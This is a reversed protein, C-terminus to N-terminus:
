SPYNILATDAVHIALFLETRWQSTSLKYHKHLSWDGTQRAADKSTYHANSTSELKVKEPLPIASTSSSTSVEVHDATSNQAFTEMFPGRHSIRGDRTMHIVQDMFRLAQGTHTALIVTIQMKRVIRHEAFLARCIHATTNTDMRSFIDDLILVANRSYVARAPSHIAETWWKFYDKLKGCEICRWGHDSCQADYETQGVIAKRITEKCLWPSQSCYAVPLRNHRM